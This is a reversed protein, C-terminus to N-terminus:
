PKKQSKEQSGTIRRATALTNEVDTWLKRWLEREAEPLRALAAEGRVGSWDPDRRWHQLKEQVVLRRQPSTSEAQRAWHALDARLWDLAQRRWTAGQAEGVNAADEGKGSGALAAVCAADYRYGAELDNALEPQAAFAEQFFQASSANLKKLACLKAFAIREAASGSVAEGRLVAPLRDALEIFRECDQIWRESPHPWGPNRSGLEHGRRLAALAERFQEKRNLADGLNCFAEAYDPKLRIAEQYAAIADDLAGKRQCANGLM